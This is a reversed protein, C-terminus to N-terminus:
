SDPYLKHYNAILGHMYDIDASNRPEDAIWGFLVCISYILTLASSSYRVGETQELIREKLIFNNISLIFQTVCQKHDITMSGIPMDAVKQVLDYDLDGNDDANLFGFYHHPGYSQFENNISAEKIITHLWNTLAESKVTLAEGVQPVFKIAVNKLNRNSKYLLFLKALEKAQRKLAKPKEAELQEGIMNLNFLETENACLVFYFLDDHFGAIGKEEILDRFQRVLRNGEEEDGAEFIFKTPMKQNTDIYEDLRTTDYGLGHQYLKLQHPSVALKIEYDM